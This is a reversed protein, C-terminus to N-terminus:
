VSPPAATRLECDPVLGCCAQPQAMAACVQSALAAIFAPHCGVTPVRAYTRIGAAQATERLQIDLEHLTEIHESTFSIPVVAVHAVGRRGLDTLTDITDPTLWKVPGVRSQFSLTHGLIPTRLRALTGEVSTKIHQPYPDGDRVLKQPLGHASFVVHLPGGAAEAHATLTADLLAALADMYGPDSPYACRYRWSARAAQPLALSLERLSSRSTAFSYHPYLSLAVKPVTAPLHALRAMAEPLRPPAYRMAVAVTADLGQAQLAARLAEAQAETNALLPSGGGIEKYLPTVEPTRRWAILRALPRRLLRPLPLVDEFLNALFPQIDALTRPGGLQLLVVGIQPMPKM